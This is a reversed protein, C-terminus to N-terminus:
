GEYQLELDSAYVSILNKLETLSEETGDLILPVFSSSDFKNSREVNSTFDQYRVGNHMETMQFKPDSPDMKILPSNFGYDLKFSKLHKKILDVKSDKNAFFSNDLEYGQTMYFYLNRDFDQADNLKTRDRQASLSIYSFGNEKAYNEANQLMIRGIKCNKFDDHVALFKIVIFDSNDYFYIQCIGVNLLCPEGQNNKGLMQAEFDLSHPLKNKVDIIILHGAADRSIAHFKYRKIGFNSNNRVEILKKLTKKIEISEDTTLPKTLLNQLRRIEFNLDFSSKELVKSFDLILKNQEDIIKIIKDERDEM